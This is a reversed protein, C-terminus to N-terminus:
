AIITKADHYSSNSKLEKLRNEFDGFTWDDNRQEFEDLLKTKYKALEAM